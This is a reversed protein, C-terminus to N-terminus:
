AHKINKENIRFYSESKQTDQMLKATKRADQYLLYEFKEANQM